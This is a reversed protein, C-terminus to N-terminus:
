GFVTAVPRRGAELAVSACQQVPVSSSASGLIVSKERNVSDTPLVASSNNHVSRHLMVVPDLEGEAPETSETGVTLEATTHEPKPEAAEATHINVTPGTSETPAAETETTVM